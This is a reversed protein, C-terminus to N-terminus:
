SMCLHPWSEWLPHPWEWHWAKTLHLLTYKRERKRERETERKREWRLHGSTRPTQSPVQTSLSLVLTQANGFWFHIKPAGPHCLPNLTRSQSLCHDWLKHTWARCWARQQWHLTCKLDEAERERQEEGVRMYTHASMTEWFYIFM